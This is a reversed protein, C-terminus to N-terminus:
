GLPHRWRSCGVADIFGSEPFISIREILSAPIPKMSYDEFKFPTVGEVGRHMLEAMMLAHSAKNASGLYGIPVNAEVLAPRGLARLISGIKPDEVHLHYIAEGGWHRLLPGLASEGPLPRYFGFWIQGSRNCATAQQNALLAAAVAPDLLGESILTEIRKTVLSDTLVELGDRRITEAETTTLRTAHWGSISYSKAELALMRHAEDYATASKNALAKEWALFVPYAEDVAKRLPAPWSNPATLDLLEPESDTPADPTVPM